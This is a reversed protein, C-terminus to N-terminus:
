DTILAAINNLDLTTNIITQWLRTVITPENGRNLLSIITSFIYDILAEGRKNHEVNGWM